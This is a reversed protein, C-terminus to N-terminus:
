KVLPKLLGGGLKPPHAKIAEEIPDTGWGPRNPILM